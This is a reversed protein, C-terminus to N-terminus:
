ASYIIIAGFALTILALVRLLLVPQKQWWDIISKLREPGIMFICLGSILFIIGLTVIVWTIDCERAGLLFVVALALRLLGAFYIRKGQKFFEMIRKVLEPKLFHVIAALIFVIGIIKIVINM